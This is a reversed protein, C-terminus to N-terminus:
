NTETMPWVGPEISEYVRNTYRAVTGAPQNPLTPTTPGVPYKKLPDTSQIAYIRSMVCGVFLSGDIDRILYHYYQNFPTFSGTINQTGMLTGTSTCWQITSSSVPSSQSSLIYLLGNDLFLCQESSALSAATNNFFTWTNDVGGNSNLRRLYIRNQSGDSIHYKFYLQGNPAFVVDQQDYYVYNQTSTWTVLSQFSYDPTGDTAVRAIGNATQTSLGTQPNVLTNFRGYVYVKGDYANYQINNYVYNSIVASNWTFRINPMLTGTSSSKDFLVLRCEYGSAYTYATCMVKDNPLMAAKQPYYGAITFQKILTFNNNVHYAYSVNTSADYEIVFFTGDSFQGIFICSYIPDNQLTYSGIEAGTTKNLKTIKGYKSDILTPTNYSGTVVLSNTVSDFCMPRWYSNINTGYQGHSFTSTYNLNGLPGTDSSVTYTSFPNFIGIKTKNALTSLRPFTLTGTTASTVYLRKNADSELVTYPLTIDKDVLGGYTGAPGQPGQPGTPGEPGQPGAPGTDGTPGQIGPLGMPGEPGQPGVPGILGQPGEPGQPGTPGVQGIETWDTNGTGSNKFWLKSPGDSVSQMYLSGALANVTNVPSATGARIAAGGTGIGNPYLGTTAALYGSIYAPGMCHITYQPNTQNIGVRNNTKDLTIPLLETQDLPPLGVWNTGEVTTATMTNQVLLDGNVDLTSSPTPQNIGVRNNTKDLYMPELDVPDLPTAPLNEYTDAWFSGRVIADGEVDLTRAPFDTVGVGIRANAADVYLAKPPFSRVNLLLLRAMTTPASIDIISNPVDVFFLEGAKLSGNVLIEGNIDLTANPTSTLIGVQKNPVDITLIKDLGSGFSLEKTFNDVFILNDGVLFQDKVVTPINFRAISYIENSTDFTTEGLIQNRYELTNSGSKIYTETFDQRVIQLDLDYFRNTDYPDSGSDQRYYVGIIDNVAFTVWASGSISAGDVEDVTVNYAGVLLRTTNNKRVDVDGITLTGFADKEWQLSFKVLYQGAIKCKLTLGNTTYPTGALEFWGTNSLQLVSLDPPNTYSIGILSWTGNAPNTTPIVDYDEYTISTPYIPDTDFVNLNKKVFTSGEVHLTTSPTTTNM